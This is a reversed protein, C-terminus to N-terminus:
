RTIETLALASVAHVIGLMLVLRVASEMTSTDLVRCLTAGDQEWCSFFPEVYEMGAVVSGLAGLFCVLVVAGINGITRVVQRIRHKTM